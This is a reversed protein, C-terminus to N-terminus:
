AGPRQGFIRSGMRIITAGEAIAAEFDESMGMSLTDMEPHSKQLEFFLNALARFSQRQININEAHAPITMLGRLKIRELRSCYDALQLVDNAVVGSKSNEGSINVEICINLPALNTPRQSNLRAAIKESAVSHVWSFHESIKKTKNSQLPGIFHWELDENELAALKKLSEQLYNEGFVRQGALIAQKIKEISQGKSAALLQVSEAPRNYKQEFESIKLRIEELSQKINNAM